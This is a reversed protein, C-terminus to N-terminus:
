PLRPADNLRKRERERRRRQAEAQATGPRKAAKHPEPRRRLLREMIRQEEDALGALPNRADQDTSM